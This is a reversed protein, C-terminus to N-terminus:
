GDTRHQPSQAFSSAIWDRAAFVGHTATSTRDSFDNRTDFGVLREVSSQLPAAEVRNVMASIPPQATVLPLPAPAAGIACCCAVAAALPARPLRSFLRMRSVQGGFRRVGSPPADPPRRAATCRRSARCRPSPRDQAGARPADTGVRRWTCAPVIARSVAPSTADASM